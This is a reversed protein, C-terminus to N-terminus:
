EYKLGLTSFIKSFRCFWTHENEAKKRAALKLKHRLPENQPKLYFKTKEIFEDDNRYFIIEKNEEFYGALGKFYSCIQLGGSMPIEFSRLNIVNVPQKLIGTNRAYTTSLSLAYNSFVESIKEFDVPPFTQINENDLMLGESKKLKQKIAGALVKRGVEFRSMNYISRLKYTAKLSTIPQIMEIKTYLSVPINNKLLKNIENARSGYPSGMFVVKEIEDEYKPKFFFPNGAYPLFVSKAKWKDFIYKTEKSTLWVLDFYQAIHEHMFPVLLNDFCILLTPIGISKIQRLIGISIDQKGYPTMFLDFRNKKIYLILNENADDMSQYKLPNFVTINCNHRKLEDFIHVRQWLDMFVNKEKFYYLIEM